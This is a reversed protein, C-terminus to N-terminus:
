WTKRFDSSNSIPNKSTSDLTDLTNYSLPKDPLLVLRCEMCM